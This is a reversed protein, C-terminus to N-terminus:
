LISVLLQLDEEADGSAYVNHLIPTLRPLVRVEGVYVARLSVTAEYSEELARYLPRTLNRAPNTYRICVHVM